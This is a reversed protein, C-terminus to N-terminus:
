KWNWFVPDQFYAWDSFIYDIYYNLSIADFFMASIFRCRLNLYLFPNSRVWKEKWAPIIKSGLFPM